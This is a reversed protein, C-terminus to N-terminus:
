LCFLCMLQRHIRVTKLYTIQQLAVVFFSLILAKLTNKQQMFAFAQYITTM